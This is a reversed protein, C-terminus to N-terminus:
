TVNISTRHNVLQQSLVISQCANRAGSAEKASAVYGQENAYLILPNTSCNVHEAFPAARRVRSLVPGGQEDYICRVELLDSLSGLALDWSSM